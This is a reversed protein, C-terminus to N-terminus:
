KTNYAHISCLQENVIMETLIKYKSIVENEIDIIINRYEKM